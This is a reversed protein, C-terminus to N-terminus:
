NIIKTLHRRRGIINHRERGATGQTTIQLDIWQPLIKPFLNMKDSNEFNDIELSNLSHWLAGVLGLCGGVRGVSWIGDYVEM